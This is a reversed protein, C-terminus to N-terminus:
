SAVASDATAREAVRAAAVFAAILNPDKRGPASEVGSSVDVGMPLTLRVAEGVNGPDLGGSLMWPLGPDFGELIAWDIAIANGGPRTAGKPPKADLLLRDAVGRYTGALSLDVGERIGIAKMVPLGFRRKLALVQELPERGHLQLWDPRVAEVIAAIGAEDM